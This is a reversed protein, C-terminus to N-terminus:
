KVSQLAKKIPMSLAIPCLGRRTCDETKHCKGTASSLAVTGICEVRRSLQILVLGM